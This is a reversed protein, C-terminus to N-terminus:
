KHFFRLCCEVLKFVMSSLIVIIGVTQDSAYYLGVGVIAGIVFITNLINRVKFALGKAEEESKRHRRGVSTQECM